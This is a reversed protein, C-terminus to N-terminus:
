DAVIIYYRGSAIKRFAGTALNGDDMARDIESMYDDGHAEGGGHFHVGVASAYGGTDNCEADWVGGIPTKEVWSDTDIYTGWGPPVQGSSGDAVYEGTKLKYLRAANAFTRVSQIFAAQKTEDDLPTMLPIVIAALIGLIAVVILIEVLTFGARESHLRYFM